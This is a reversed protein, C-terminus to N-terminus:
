RDLHAMRGHSEGDPRGGPLEQVFAQDGAGACRGSRLLQPIFFSFIDRETRLSWSSYFAKAKMRVKQTPQLRGTGNHLGCVQIEEFIRSNHSGPERRCRIWAVPFSSNNMNLWLCYILFHLFIIAFNTGGGPM